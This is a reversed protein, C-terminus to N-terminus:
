YRILFSNSTDAEFLKRLINKGSCFFLFLFYFLIIVQERVFSRSYVSVNYYDYLDNDFAYAEGSFLMKKLNSIQFLLQMVFISIKYPFFEKRM